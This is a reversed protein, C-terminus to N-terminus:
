PADSTKRAQLAHWLSAALGIATLPLVFWLMMFSFRDIIAHKSSAVILYAVYATYFGLLLVAEVRGIRHGTFMIPLCVLTVGIMVPIDFHLAASPVLIPSMSFTGSVGLIGLINFINSGIVNGVAIDRQGKIAAVVSTAVEPLSTGAAVVTLGIVLESLGLGQAIAVASAVMWRAGLICLALGVAIFAVSVALRRKASSPRPSLAETYEAVIAQSERQAELIIFLTYSVMGLLLIGADLRGLHGDRCLLWLLLSTGIMVPVDRQILKQQVLLPTIVGSLGLIFLVNFINSGVANGIVLEPQGNWTAGLSVALEPTSTGFAVVTLGVIVPSIGFRLALQSAGRVLLDAGGVLLALGLMLYIM